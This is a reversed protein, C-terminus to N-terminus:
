PRPKSKFINSVDVTNMAVLDVSERPSRQRAKQLQRSVQRVTTATYYKIAGASIESKFVVVLLVNEDVDCFLLSHHMGQQYINTFGTEGLRGAIAQTACFSGAALAAITTADFNELAGRRSILPGGKDIVLAV